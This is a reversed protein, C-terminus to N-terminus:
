EVEVCLNAKNIIGQAGAGQSRFYIKMTHLGPELEPTTYNLYCSGPSATPVLDGDLCNDGMETQGLPVGDLAIAAFYGQGDTNSQGRITSSLKVASQSTVFFNISSDPLETLFVNGTAADSSITKYNISKKDINGWEWPSIDDGATGPSTKNGNMYFWGLVRYYDSGVKVYYKVGVTNGALDVYAPATTTLKIVGANNIVVYGMTANAQGGAGAIWDGATPLSLTTTTTKALRVNGWYVVGPMITITDETTNSGRLYMGSRYNDAQRNELTISQIRLDTVAVVNDSDTEVRALRVTGSAIAPAVDPTVETYVYTGDSKMDVYTFKTATYTKATADKKVRQGECYAIGSSTTTTLNASTTMLCGSFVFDNFAEDRFITVDGNETMKEPTVTRAQLLGGDANNIGNVVSSRFTELHAITVSDPSYFAEVTIVNAYSNTAVALVFILSLLFRKM